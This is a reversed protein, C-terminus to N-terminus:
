QMLALTCFHVTAHRVKLSNILLAGPLAMRHCVARLIYNADDNAIGTIIQCTAEECHCPAELISPSGERSM